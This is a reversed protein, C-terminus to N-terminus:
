SALAAARRAFAREYAAEFRPVVSEASFEQARAAASAAADAPSASERLPRLPPEASKQSAAM